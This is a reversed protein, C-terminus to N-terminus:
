ALGRAQAQQQSIWSRGYAPDDATPMRGHVVTDGANHLMRREDSDLGGQEKLHRIFNLYNQKREIFPSLHPLMAHMAKRKDDPIIKDEEKDIKAAFAIRGAERYTKVIRSLYDKAHRNQEANAIQNIGRKIAEFAEPDTLAWGYMNRDQV